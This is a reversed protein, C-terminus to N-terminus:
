RPPRPTSPEGIKLHCPMVHPLLWNVQCMPLSKALPNILKGQLPFHASEALMKYKANQCKANPLHSQRQKHLLHISFPNVVNLFSVYKKAYRQRIRGCPHSRRLAKGVSIATSHVIRPDRWNPTTTGCTNSCIPCNSSPEDVNRSMVSTRGRV